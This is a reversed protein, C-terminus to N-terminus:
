PSRACRFGIDHNSNGATSRLRYSVRVFNVSNNWAGGRLVRYTIGYDPDSVTNGPYAGYWDDVWEWVNGAMDHMGYPSIGDPYAGVESTDGLFNGYNAFRKEIGENGWPYVREDTGRAAKQWEAESPLRAGRWECYSKAQNWNVYIIPYNDFDPNGYYNDRKYSKLIAFSMCVGADVCSKYLVNTVEYVDMYFDDLYVKHAPKENDWGNDSGMTFEGAPVLRMTVGKADVIETLLPTPTPTYTQTPTFIPVPTKSPPLNTFTATPSLAFTVTITPTSTATLAPVLHFFQPLIGILAALLTGILGIIAVIIAPNIPSKGKEKQRANVTVVTKCLRNYNEVLDDAQRRLTQKATEFNKTDEFPDYIISRSDTNSNKIETLTQLSSCFKQVSQVFETRFKESKNDMFFFEPNKAVELFEYLSQIRTGQYNGFDQESIYKIVDFPVQKKVFDLSKKDQSQKMPLQAIPEMTSVANDNGVIVNGGVQGSVVVSIHPQGKGSEAADLEEIRKNLSRILRQYGDPEFLDVWHWRQLSKPVACNELRVPIIYIQDKPKLEAENLAIGVETQAFNKRRFRQTFQESVCVVFIDCERVAKRIEFEWNAGAFLKEKDLWADVGDQALRDYLAKAADKDVHIHCLFVKLPRKQEPM